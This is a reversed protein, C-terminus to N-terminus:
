RLKRFKNLSPDVGIMDEAIQVSNLAAGKRLNDCVIWLLIGNKISCDKRIRSVFIADEGESKRPTIFVGNGGNESRRDITVINESDSLMEFVETDSVPGEFECAVSMCHGVFTPVRVCTVAVKINSRLVKRTEDSIKKEEGSFGESDIGGISPIVNFATSECSSELNNESNSEIGEILGKSQTLFDRLSSLGAGSVSQYTSLVIRKVPSISSLSNIVVCLPVAVCNPGSVIGLSAGNALVHGNVEPVILPVKPNLRFCASKDIVVSGSEAIQNAYKRAIADPVCLFTLDYKSFDVENFRLLDVKKNGFMTTKRFQHESAVAVCDAVPFEREILINMTKTGVLGTAGVVAVNYKKGKDNRFCDKKLFNEQTMKSGTLLRVVVLSDVPM